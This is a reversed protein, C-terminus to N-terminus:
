GINKCIDNVIKEYKKLNDQDLVVEMGLAEWLLLCVPNLLSMGGGYGRNSSADLKYGGGALGQGKGVTAGCDRCTPPVEYGGCYLIDAGRAGQDM